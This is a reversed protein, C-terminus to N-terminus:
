WKANELFPNYGLSPEFQKGANKLELACSLMHSKGKGMWRDDNLIEVLREVHTRNSAHNYTIFVRKSSLCRLLPLHKQWTLTLVDCEPLHALTKLNKCGAIDVRRCTKPAHELSIIPNSACDFVQCTHPAGTLDKIGRYSIDFIETVTDFHDPLLGSDGAPQVLGVSGKVSWTLTQPNWTAVGSLVWRSKFRNLDGSVDRM